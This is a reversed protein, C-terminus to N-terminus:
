EPKCAGAEAGCRAASLVGADRAVTDGVDEIARNIVALRERTEQSLTTDRELLSQTYLAAPSLANNIDHAIGSALQGLARLREQQMVAQQSQRLDDYAKQLATHLEAQRTALSLQESLQRLFECDTSSFSAPERRAAVLAGFVQNGVALPAIVLAALGAAALRAPFAFTSNRIDAEYVLQGRMCRALGNEDIPVRAREPLSLATTLPVSGVGVSAITLVNEGADHLGICAFDVPLQKELTRIVM